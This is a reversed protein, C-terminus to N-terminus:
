WVLSFDQDKYQLIRIRRNEYYLPVNMETASGTTNKYVPKIDFGSALGYADPDMQGILGEQGHDTLSKALWMMLDYGLSANLDPITHFKRYFSAKFYQYDPSAVDIFSSISLHLSLSEMYNANLNNYGVWQPLGFVIAERTDKDAHLKRMFASVFTEETKLFYPLIFITGREDSMLAHLNTNLMEPSADKILLEEAELGKTKTFMEARNREVPNDRMVVYVKKDHMKDRIYETIAQAHTSLGPYLQILFPNTSDMTFAPLWPSVVMIENQLGFSALSELDKKEYPGIIVDANKVETKATLKPLTVAGADADFTSVKVPLGISDIRDMAMRVGAYYQIFRNLKPDQHDSFLDANLANFPILLAIEANGEKVPKDPRIVADTVIPPTKDETWEITDTMIADRPVLIVADTNPDYQPVDDRTTVTPEVQPPPKVVARKPTSCSCIACIVLCLLLVNSGNLPQRHNPASIM